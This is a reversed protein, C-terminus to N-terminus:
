TLDNIDWDINIATIREHLTVQDLHGGMVQETAFSRSMMATPAALSAGRLTKQDAVHPFGPKRYDNLHYAPTQM